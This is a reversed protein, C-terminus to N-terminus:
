EKRFRILGIILALSGLVFLIHKYPIVYFTDHIHVDFTLNGTVNFFSALLCIAAALLLIRKTM